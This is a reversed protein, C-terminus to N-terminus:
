MQLHSSERSKESLSLLGYIGDRLEENNVIRHSMFSGVCQEFRTPCPTEPTHDSRTTPPYGRYPYGRTDKGKVEISIFLFIIHYRCFMGKM